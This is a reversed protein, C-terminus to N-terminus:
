TQSCTMAAAAIGYWSRLSSVEHSTPCRKLVGNSLTPWMVYSSVTHEHVYANVHGFEHVVASTLDWQGGGPTGTGTYWSAFNSRINLTAFCTAGAPVVCGQLIVYGLTNDPLPSSMSQM